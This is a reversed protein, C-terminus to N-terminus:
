TWTHYYMTWTKKSHYFNWVFTTSFILVCKINLLNKGWFDHRTHSLTSLYPLELCYVCSLITIRMRMAHQIVLAVFECKSYTIIIAKASCCNNCTHAQISRWLSVARRSVDSHRGIENSSSERGMLVSTVRDMFSLMMLSVYRFIIALLTSISKM